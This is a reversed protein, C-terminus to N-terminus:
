IKKRNDRPFWRVLRYL